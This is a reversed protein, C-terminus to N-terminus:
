PLDRTSETIWSPIRAPYLWAVLAAVGDASLHGGQRLKTLGSASLGTQRGAERLSVGRIECAMDFAEALKPWNVTHTM